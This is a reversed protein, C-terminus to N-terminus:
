LLLYQILLIILFLHLTLLFALYFILYEIIDVIHQQTTYDHLSLEINSLDNITIQPQSTGSRLWGLHNKCFYYYLYLQNIKTTTLQISISLNTLWCKPPSIKIDGTGGVGRAVLVITPFELNYEPYYGTIQYGSYIPYVGTYLKDKTPMKGYKFTAIDIFKYTYM